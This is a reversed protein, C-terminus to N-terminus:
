CTGYFVIFVVTVACIAPYIYRFIPRPRAALVERRTVPKLARYMGFNHTELKARTRAIAEPNEAEIGLRELYSDLLTELHIARSLSRGYLAAHYADGYAFLLLIVLALLALAASEDRVALGLLVGWAAIGVSRIQAGAGVFGTMARLTADYDARVLDVLKQEPEANAELEALLEDEPPHDAASM